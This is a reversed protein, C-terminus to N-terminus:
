AIDHVFDFEDNQLAREIVEIALERISEEYSEVTRRTFGKSVLRRYRTHEPPDYEMLTRRAETEEETMEELRIGKTSTFTEVDRSVDLCDQYRLISWFGSGDAEETWHVPDTERLRTFTAHPVGSTYADHSTIDADDPGHDALYDDVFTQAM